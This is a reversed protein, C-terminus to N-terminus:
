VILAKSATLIYFLVSSTCYMGDGPMDRSYNALIYPRRGSPVSAVVGVKVTDPKSRNDYGFLPGQGFAQRLASEIGESLFRHSYLLQASHRFM